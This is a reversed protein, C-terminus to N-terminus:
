SRHIAVIVRALLSYRLARQIHMFAFRNGTRERHLIICGIACIISVLIYTVFLYILLLPHESGLCPQGAQKMNTDQRHIVSEPDIWHKFPEASEM